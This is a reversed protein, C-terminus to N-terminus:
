KGVLAEVSTHLLKYYSLENTQKRIDVSGHCKDYENIAEAMKGLITNRGSNAKGIQGAVDGLTLGIKMAKSSVRCLAEVMGRMESNEPLNEAPVTAMLDKESIFFHWNEGKHQILVRNGTIEDFDQM